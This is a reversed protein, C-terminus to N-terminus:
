SWIIKLNLIMKKKFLPGLGEVLFLGFQVQKKVNLSWKPKKNM